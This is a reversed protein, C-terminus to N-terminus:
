RRSRKKKATLSAVLGAAAGLLVGAVALQGLSAPAKDEDGLAAMRRRAGYGSPPPCPRRRIAQPHERPEVTMTRPVSGAQPARALNCQVPRELVPRLWYKDDRAPHYTPPPLVPARANLPPPPTQGPRTMFAYVQDHCTNGAPELSPPRWTPGLIAPRVLKGRDEAYIMGGGPVMVVEADDTIDTIDRSVTFPVERAAYGPLSYHSAFVGMNTNATAPRSAPDFIGSGFTDDQSELENLGDDQYRPDYGRAGSLTESGYGHHM